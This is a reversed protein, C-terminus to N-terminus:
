IIRHRELVAFARAVDDPSNRRDFECVRLAAAPLHAAVLPWDMEGTGLAFHDKVGRLEHLHVGIIRPGLSELWDRHTGFGLLEQGAAHGVDHWYGVPGERGAELLLHAEELNPIEYVNYRTEIGVQVRREAAYGAIARISRISQELHRGANAAREAALADRVAWFEDSGREGANVLERLRAQKSTDVPITAVHVVIAEAGIRAANDITALTLRVAERREDEDTAGLSLEYSWRGDDVRCAPCPNHLSRVPPGDGIDDFWSPPAEYNFEVADFGFAAAARRFDGATAFRDVAWM